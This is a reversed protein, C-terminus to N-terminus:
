SLAFTYESGIICSSTNRESFLNHPGFVHASTHCAHMLLLPFFPALRKAAFGPGGDKGWGTRKRFIGHEWM